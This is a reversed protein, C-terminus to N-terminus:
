GRTYGATLIFVHWTYHVPPSARLSGCLYAAHASFTRLVCWQASLIRVSEQWLQSALVWSKFIAMLFVLWSKLVGFELITGCNVSLLKLIMKTNGRIYLPRLIAISVFLFFLFSKSYHLSDTKSLLSYSLMQALTRYVNEISLLPM